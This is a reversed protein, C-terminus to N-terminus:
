PMSVYRRRLGCTITSCRVTVFEIAAVKLVNAGSRGSTSSLSSGPTHECKTTPRSPVITCNTRSDIMHRWVTPSFQAAKPM